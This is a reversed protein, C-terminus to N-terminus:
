ELNLQLIKTRHSNKKGGVLAGYSQLDKHLYEVIFIQKKKYKKM